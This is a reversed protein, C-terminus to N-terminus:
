HANIHTLTAHRAQMFLPAEFRSALTQEQKPMARALAFKLFKEIENMAEDYHGVLMHGGTEYSILKSNHIEGATYQTSAYTGYLDDRAGLLLTPAKIEELQYRTISNSIASDNIIGQLRDSIPLIHNMFRYVRAQENKDATAATEPSTAMVVKIITNPTLKSVLWYVPDSGVITTLTKEALPSLKATVTGGEQPRYAIPVMLILARCQQPHRIAFQLSSPGGASVGFVSATQIGLADMLDAHADAQAVASPNAPLPTRLYGFRSMAVLRFGRSALPELLELGQDFGGGAGHVVLIVPGEGIEAYEIPGSKTEIIKSVGALRERSADIDRKYISSTWIGVVIFALGITLM